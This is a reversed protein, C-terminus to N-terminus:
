AGCALAAQRIREALGHALADIRQQDDGEVMVRILPETGSPRILLRGSGALEEEAAKVAAQVGPSQLVDKRPTKVNVLVQPYVTMESALEHLSRKSRMMTSFLSVATMPGDGTTNNRLDIIHGSQEGGLIYGGERMRELVYRDGVPARLLAIGHAALAKELGINSMVTAVVADGRLEGREHLDRGIALMIHDGSLAAGTEDVFLARDADGDFAVGVAHTEGAAILERVRAQLARLDTAGCHVNIRAGDAECNIEHVRAGLKRLAYPAHQYAAGCAADVVVTLGSLDGARAYLEDYYHKGLHQAVSAVGIDAGTPRPLDESHVLAEIEDELADSLKFGDPGFFKIGNDAIPNHSASIMVGAAAKTRVVITAVAPTPVIGVSVVDRGVSTIGATIAAELMTGSLRTDRGIVIPRHRDSMKALVSAGARGVAFALQPSLETNAVGRVGDTGFISM